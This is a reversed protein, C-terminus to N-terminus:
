PDPRSPRCLDLVLSRLWRHAPDADLRPHWMQCVTIPPTRVPLPFTALAPAAAPDALAFRAFSAPVLAVMDSARAVALAASFSPVVAVVKRTLGFTALAEDVPGTARGRRSTVVHTCGAYREPTLEGTAVLPHTARVAGVFRDRLLAQVRVEPGTDGMVGIELDISGDRLSAVDKEPKPAFRLRVDPGATAVAVILGAAFADVFGDDARITFTRALTALDLDSKAPRLLALAELSVGHVRERLQCARPTAVLRRGARVLLQDGTAARLRTLTRSMASASIGLRRAAGVVSGEALLADLAPLLNLDVDPM